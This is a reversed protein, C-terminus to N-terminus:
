AATYSASGPLMESDSRCIKLDVCIEKPNEGNEMAEIIKDKFKKLMTKCVWSLPKPLVKCARGIATNIAEDDPDQGALDQLKQMIKICMSCKKGPAPAEEEEEFLTGWLLSSSHLSWCYQERRCEVATAMDKCWFEPGQLCPEPILHSGALVAGLAANLWLILLLAM